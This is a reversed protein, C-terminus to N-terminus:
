AHTTPLPMPLPRGAEILYALAWQLLERTSRLAEADTKGCGFVAPFEAVRGVYGFDGDRMVNISYRASLEHARDVVEPDIACEPSEESSMPSKSPM